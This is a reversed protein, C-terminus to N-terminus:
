GEIPIRVDMRAGGLDSEGIEISGGHGEIIKGIIALGLGTGVGAKKTTFFADLVKRRNELPIGPGNDEVVLLSDRNEEFLSVRIKGSFGAGISEKKERLADAANSVLNMVIQGYQSRKVNASISEDLTKEIIFEKTKAGMILLSEDIVQFLPTVEKTSDSRAANRMSHNIDVVRKVGTQIQSNLTELSQFKAELQSRFAKSEESDPILQFLFNKLDALEEKEQFRSMEIFNVPNNIEHAIGSVMTGLSSLKEAQILQDSATDLDEQAELLKKKASEYEVSISQIKSEIVRYGEQLQMKQFTLYFGSAVSECLMEIEKRQTPTLKHLNQEKQYSPHIDAFSLMAFVEGANVLPIIYIATIGLLKKNQDESKSATGRNMNKIFISKKYKRSAGHMSYEEEFPLQNNKLSTKIEEPYPTDTINSILDFTQNTDNCNYFLFTRLGFYRSFTEQINAIMSDFDRAEQILKTFNQIKELRNKQEELEKTRINVKEELTVYLKANEIFIAAQSILLNLTEIRSKHFARRLLHNELYLLGIMRGKSQIPLCLISLIKKDQIHPNEGFQPDEMASDLILEKATRLTYQILSQPLEKFDKVPIHDWTIIEKSSVSGEVEVTIHEKDKLLLIARTAGANELVLNLLKKLLNELNVEEALTQTSKLISQFDMASSSATATMSVSTSTLLSDNSKSIRDKTYDPYLDIVHQVKAKAGCLDYYYLSTSLYQVARDIRSTELYFDGALEACLGADLNYENEIASKIAVDYWFSAEWYDKKFKSYEAQILAYKHLFNAPNNESWTKYQKIYTELEKTYDIEPNSPDKLNLKLLLLSSVFIDQASILMGTGYNRFELLKKYISFCIKYNSSIFELYCESVKFLYYGVKAEIILLKFEYDEKSIAENKFNKFESAEGRLRAIFTMLFSSFYFGDEANIKKFYDIYPLYNKSVDKLNTAICYSIHLSNCIISSKYVLDNINYYKRFAQMMLQEGQKSHVVWNFTIFGCVLPVKLVTNNHNFNDSLELALKGFKYGDVYNGMSILTVGYISYAFSTAPSNGYKLSFDVMVLCLYTALNPDKWWAPTATNMLIEIIMIIDKDKIRPLNKIDEVSISEIKKNIGKFLVFIDRSSIKEKINIGQMRLADICVKTAAHIEGNSSYCEVLLNQLIIRESQTAIVNLIELLGNIAFEINALKYNMLYFNYNTNFYYPHKPYDGIIYKSNKFYNSASEYSFSEMARTGARYNLDILIEREKDSSILGLGYNLHNTIEFLNEELHGDKTNALLTQGIKVHTSVKEEESLLSNAAQQVRDHIFKYSISQNNDIQIEASKYNTDLPLLTGEILAEKLLIATESPPKELIQSLIRLEFRDGISSAIKLINQTEPSLNKMRKAVLEVVNETYHSSAIKPLDYNWGLDRQYFICHDLYLNKLFQRVFFPNGGTKQFVLNPLDLSVDKHLTDSIMRQIFFEMLPALFIKLISIGNKELEHILQTLPHLEDVENDRYAGILFLHHIDHNQITSEIFKLTSLDSWQLDDLFITLPHDLSAFVQIFSQLTKQFRQESQESDLPDIPPVDGTIHILDPILEILLAINPSCSQLIKSKWTQIRESRETLIQRILGTLAQILSYYPINRKFQDFKGSLFYGRKELIPKHIEYILATKGVGSYGGVLVLKSGGFPEEGDEMPRDRPSAIREFAELLFSVEAERGYLKQPIFFIGKSEREGPIFDIPKQQLALERAVQLDELLGNASHYRDEANKSLLKLILDSISKSIEPKIEAPPTPPIAIHAHVLELPDTSLFPLRDTILEYLTIGLSYLDTRFDISRNMRGTQEPSIYGLTGELTEPQLPAQEEAQLLSALGLDILYVRGTEKQVLINSSNIDKHVIGNQHLEILNETIHIALQLFFLTNRTSTKWYTLLPITDLDEMILIYRQSLKEFGLIPVVGKLSFKQSLEYEFHIRTIDQIRPFEETLIKCIVRKGDSERIARIVTVRRSEHISELFQYGPINM